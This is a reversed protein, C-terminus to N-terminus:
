ISKMPFKKQLNEIFSGIEDLRNESEQGEEMVYNSNEGLHFELEHEM